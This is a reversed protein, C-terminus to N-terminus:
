VNEIKFFRSNCVSFLYPHGTLGQTNSSRPPLTPKTLFMCPSAPGDMLYHKREVMEKAHIFNASNSRETLLEPFFIM